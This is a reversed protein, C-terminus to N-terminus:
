NGTIRPLGNKAVALAMICQLPPRIVSDNPFMVTLRFIKLTILPIPSSSSTHSTLMTSETTCFYNSLTKCSSGRVDHKTLGLQSSSTVVNSDSNRCEIISCLSTSSTFPYTGLNSGNGGISSLANGESSLGGLSSNFGKGDCRLYAKKPATSAKGSIM